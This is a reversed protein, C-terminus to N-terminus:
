IRRVMCLGCGFAKAPGIGNFLAHIFTTPDTVTLLGNFDLTSFRIPANGKGRSLRHQRYGDVRVPNGNLEFGYRGARSQLWAVGQDQVLDAIASSEQGPIGEARRRLKADMIVDHRAHKGNEGTKKTRVPNARLSFALREGARIRPEYPKTRIEWLGEDNIPKRGSVLYIGLGGDDEVRYVFDRSKADRDGFLDWVRQHIRYGGGGLLGSLRAM